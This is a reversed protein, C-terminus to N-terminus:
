DKKTLEQWSLKAFLVRKTTQIEETLAMNFYLRVNPFMMMGCFELKAMCDKKKERGIKREKLQKEGQKSYINIICKSSIPTFCQGPSLVTFLYILSRTMFSKKTLSAPFSYLYSWPQTHTLDFNFYCIQASPYSLLIQPYFPFQFFFIHFFISTLSVSLAPSQKVDSLKSLCRPSFVM